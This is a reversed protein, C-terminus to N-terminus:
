LDFWVSYVDMFFYHSIATFGRGSLLRRLFPGVSMDHAGHGEMSSGVVGREAERRAADGMRSRLTLKFLIWVIVAMLLGGAVEAALFQWGFIMLLVRVFEIVLIT